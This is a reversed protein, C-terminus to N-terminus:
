IDFDIESTIYEDDNTQKFNMDIDLELEITAYVTIKTKLQNLRKIVQVMSLTVKLNIIKLSEKIKFISKSRLSRTSAASKIM